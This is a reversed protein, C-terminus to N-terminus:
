KETNTFLRYRSHITFLDSCFFLVEGNRGHIDYIAGFLKDVSVGSISQMRVAISKDGTVDATNRIAIQNQFLEITSRDTREADSAFALCREYLGTM